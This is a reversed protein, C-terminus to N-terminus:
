ATAKKLMDATKAAAESTSLGGLQWVLSVEANLDSDIDYSTYDVGHEILTQTWGSPVTMAASGNHIVRQGAARYAPSELIRLSMPDGLTAITAPDPDTLHQDRDADYEGHWPEDRKKDHPYRATQRWGNARWVAAAAPDYWDDSDVALGLCHVSRSAPLAYPARPGTGNQYAVWAAYNADAQAASRGADNVDALRGLQQDIRLVSAAADARLWGRGHGLDTTNM